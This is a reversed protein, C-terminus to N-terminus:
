KRGEYAAMAARQISKLSVNNNKKALRRCNEYEPSANVVIGSRWGEKIRVTGYRTKVEVFRRELAERQVEYSRVGLTSGEKFLVALAADRQAAALTM